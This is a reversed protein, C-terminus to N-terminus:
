RQYAPHFAVALLVAFQERLPQGGLALAAALGSLLGPLVANYCGLAARGSGCRTFRVNVNSDSLM